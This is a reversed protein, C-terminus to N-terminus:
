PNPTFAPILLAAVHKTSTVNKFSSGRASLSASSSCSSTSSAKSAIGVDDAKWTSSAKATSNNKSRSLRSHGGSILSLYGSQGNPARVVAVAPWEHLCYAVRIAYSIGKDIGQLAFRSFLKCRSPDCFTPCFETQKRWDIPFAQMPGRGQTYRALRKQGFQSLTSRHVKESWVEAVPRQCHLDLKRTRSHFNPM